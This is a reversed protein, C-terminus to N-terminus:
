HYEPLEIKNGPLAFRKTNLLAYNGIFRIQIVHNVLSFLQFEFGEQLIQVVYQIRTVDRVDVCGLLQLVDELQHLRDDLLLVLRGGFGVHEREVRASHAAGKM